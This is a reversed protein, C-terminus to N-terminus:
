VTKRKIVMCMYHINLSFGEYPVSVKFEVWWNYIIFKKTM